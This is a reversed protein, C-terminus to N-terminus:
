GPYHDLTSLHSVTAGPLDSLDWHGDQWRAHVAARQRWWRAVDRPLAHWYNGRRKLERLFTEYIGLHAQEVLYDPHTNVLAMGQWQQIVNVKDLWLHPTREGLIVM